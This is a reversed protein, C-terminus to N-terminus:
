LLSHSGLHCLTAFIATTLRVEDQLTPTLFEEAKIMMMRFIM